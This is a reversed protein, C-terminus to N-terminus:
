RCHHKTLSSRQHHRPLRKPRRRNKRKSLLARKLKQVNQILMPILDDYAITEVLGEKNYVVLEPLVEDVEEAILGVEIEGSPNVRKTTGAQNIYEFNRVRLKNIFDVYDKADVIDQKYRRSSVLTGLQGSANIYANVGSAVTVGAIGQIFCSTTQLVGTNGFRIANSENVLGPDNGIIINGSESGTYNIGSNVGICVNNTGTVCNSLSNDGISLNYSSTTIKSASNTGIAINETGSTLSGLAGNAIPGGGLSTAGIAVNDTGNVNSAMTNYGVAVNNAGSSLQPLSKAGVATNGSGTTLRTLSGDGFGTNDIGTTVSSGTGNSGLFVNTQTVVGPTLVPQPMWQNTTANYILASSDSPVNSSVATDNFAVSSKFQSLKNIRISSSSM